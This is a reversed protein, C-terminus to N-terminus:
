NCLFIQQTTPYSLGEREVLGDELDHLDLIRVDFGAARIRETVDLGYFRVHDRQTYRALRAEPGIITLDEDTLPGRIPVMVVAHGGPALVRRMERYAAMDDPIHEMVHCCYLFDFSDDPLRLCTLDMAVMARGPQIDISLYESSLSKIWPAVADEPSCHLTRRGPPIRDRLEEYAFRDRERSGCRPCRGQRVKPARGVDAFRAGEWNCLPCVRGVGRTKVRDRLGRAEHALSRAIRTTHAALRSM